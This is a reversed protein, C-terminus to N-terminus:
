SGSSFNNRIVTAINERNYPKMIISRIGYESATANDISERSGSCLLIPLDGRQVHIKKALDSGTMGPMTQDTIVMDFSGPSKMFVDFALSGNEAVVVRYGLSELIERGLDMLLDDDEVFLIRETGKPVDEPKPGMGPLSTDAVTPLAIYFTTGKGPESELNISGGHSKVIGHVMSLGMGTGEGPKKTTFFPDFIKDFIAPDIGTGTDDIVLLAYTGHTVGELMEHTDNGADVTELRVTLVGGHDKMAHAANTCLNILMQQIQTPDGVVIPESIIDSSIEITTPLIARLFTITEKVLPKLMVTSREEKDQRSFTLIQKVLHRAREAAKLIQDLNKTCSDGPKHELQSLQSYGIIVGLINNFDHAIGGALTGIAEMKQSQRLKKEMTSQETIDRKVAVYSTIEGLGNKVPSITQEEEYITGDKRSNLIRGHWVQGRSITDWLRTYFEGDQRGSKLIRINKGLVEHASYGTATGFAPNVFRITGDNDTIVISDATQDIATSLLQRQELLYDAIDARVCVGAFTGGSMVPLVMNQSERMLQLASEIDQDFDIHPKEQLCDIVLSHPAKVLDHPTLLGLFRGEDMVALYMKELLVQEVNSVGEYPGVIDYDTRLLHGAKM